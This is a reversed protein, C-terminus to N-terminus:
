VFVCFAFTGDIFQQEAEELNASAYKLWTEWWKKAGSKDLYAGIRKVTATLKQVIEGDFLPKMFVPRELPVPSETSYVITAM